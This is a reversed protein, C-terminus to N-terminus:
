EEEVPRPTLRRFDGWLDFVGLLVIGSAVLWEVIVFVYLLSRMWIPSRWRQFYFQVIALGQCFYVALIVALVNEAVVQLVPIPLFLGYGSAILAWVVPVPCKWRSLDGFGPPLGLRRQRWRVLLLNLLVASGVAIVHLAPGLRVLSETLAATGENLQDLRDGAIGAQRYVELLSQRGQELVARLESVVEAPTSIVLFVSLAVAAASVLTTAGVTWDVSWQRRIVQPWLLTFLGMGALYFVAAAPGAVLNATLAVLLVVGILPLFGREQELSLGPQPTFIMLLTGGIPLVLASLYFVSTLLWARLLGSFRIGRRNMEGPGEM